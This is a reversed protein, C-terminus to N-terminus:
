MECWNWATTPLLWPPALSLSHSAFRSCRHADYLRHAPVTVKQHSAPEVDRKTAAVEISELAGPQCLAVLARLSGIM